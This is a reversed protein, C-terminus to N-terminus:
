APDGGQLAARIVPKVKKEKFDDSDSLLHDARIEAMGCGLSASHKISELLAFESTQKEETRSGIARFLEALACLTEGAHRMREIAGNELQLAIHNIQASTRSPHNAM